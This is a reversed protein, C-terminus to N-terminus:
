IRLVKKGVLSSQTRMRQLGFFQRTRNTMLGISRVCHYCHNRVKARRVCLGLEEPQKESYRDSRLYLIATLRRKQLYESLVPRKVEIRHGVTHSHKKLLRKRAVVSGRTGEAYGDGAPMLGCTNRISRSLFSSCDPKTICHRWDIHDIRLTSIRRQAERESCSLVFWRLHEIYSDRCLDLTVWERGQPYDGDLYEVLDTQAM